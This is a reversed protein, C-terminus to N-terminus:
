EGYRERRPASQPRAHHGPPPPPPPTPTPTVSPGPFDSGLLEIWLAHSKAQDQEDLARGALVAADRVERRFAEYHKDPWRDTLNESPLSPNRVEPASDPTKELAAHIAEFTQTLSQADSGAGLHEAILVQLVISKIGRREEQNEDRWRKMMRVTRHFRPGQALCWTTYGAPNTEHWGNGRFPIELLKGGDRNRAPVIDIHFHGEEDGAYQLRVCPKKPQLRKKYDGNEGLIQELQELADDAEMGAEAAILVVDLDYEGARTVPKVATGNAYSGQLFVDMQSVGCKDVLYAHLRNWSETIRGEPVDGLEIEEFFRQFALELEM